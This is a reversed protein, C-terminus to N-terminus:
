VAVFVKLGVGLVALGEEGLDLSKDYLAVGVVEPAPLLRHLGIFLVAQGQRSGAAAAVAAVGVAEVHGGLALPEAEFRLGRGRASALGGDEARAFLDPLLHAVQGKFALLDVGRDKAGAPVQLLGVSSRRHM